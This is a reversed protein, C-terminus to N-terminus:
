VPEKLKFQSVPVAIVMNARRPDNYGNKSEIPKKSTM